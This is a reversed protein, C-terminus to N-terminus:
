KINLVRTGNRNVEESASFGFDKLKSIVEEIYDTDIYRVENSGIKVNYICEKIYKNLKKKREKIQMKDRKRRIKEANYKRPIFIHILIDILVVINYYPIFLMKMKGGDYEENEIFIEGESIGALLIIVFIVFISLISITAFLINM